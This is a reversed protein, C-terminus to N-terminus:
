CWEDTEKGGDGSNHGDIDSKRKLDGPIRCTHQWRGKALMRTAITTTIVVVMIM